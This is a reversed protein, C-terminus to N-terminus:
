GARRLRKPQVKQRALVRKSTQRWDEFATELELSFAFLLVAAAFGLLIYFTLGLGEM